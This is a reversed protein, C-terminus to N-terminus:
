AQLEQQSELPIGLEQSGVGGEEGEKKEKKKRAPVPVALFSKTKSIPRSKELQVLDGVKFQNEPDHAQYKKKKRVRRKYKPHPALRTVEVAVTKDSTACVVKGQLSKMARIPPLFTFPKAPRLTLSSTPKSLHSLQTTGHLFPTSLTLSNLSSTLSMTLLM